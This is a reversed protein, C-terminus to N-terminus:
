FGIFPENTIGKYVFQLCLSVQELRSIDTTEDMIISLCGTSRAESTTRSLAKKAVIDLLENQIDPAIWQAHPKTQEKVKKSLWPIDRSRM